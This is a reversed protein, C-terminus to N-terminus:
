NPVALTMKRMGIKFFIISVTLLVLILVMITSFGFNEIIFGGIMLGPVSCFAILTSLLSYYSNRIENPIMVLYLERELIDSSLDLIPFMFAIVLYILVPIVNLGKNLPFIIFTILLSGFFMLGHALRMEPIKRKDIKLSLKIGIPVLFIGAFYAVMRFLGALTDSGTYGFYMPILVLETWIYWTMSFFIGGVIYLKVGNNKLIFSIGTQFIEKYSTKSDNKSKEIQNLVKLSLLALILYFFIQFVFVSKRSITSAMYGGLFITIGGLLQTSLKLRGLFLKYTEKKPDSDEAIFSYNIEFWTELAGSEQSKAIGFIFYAFIFTLLVTAYYLIIFATCYSILAIFVVWKHGIYDGLNGSPYDLSTQVIFQVSLLLGLDIFSLYELVYLILFTSSLLSASEMTLKFFYYSHFYSREERRISKIGLLKSSNESLLTM